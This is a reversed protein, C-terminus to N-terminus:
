AARVFKRFLAGNEGLPVADYIRFGCVELLRVAKHYDAAVFNELIPFMMLMEKVHSKFLRTYVIPSVLEAQPGTLLWPRGVNGMPTGGLGGIGAILGDVFITKRVLSNRFSQWLARHPLLGLSMVENADAERLSHGLMSVHAATSPIIQIHPM